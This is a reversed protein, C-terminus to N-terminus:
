KRIVVIDKEPISFTRNTTPELILWRSGLSNLVRLPGVLTAGGKNCAKVGFADAAAFGNCLSEPVALDVPSREAIGIARAVISAPIGPSGLIFVTEFFVVFATLLHAKIEKLGFALHMPTLVALMALTAVFRVEHGSSEGGVKQLLWVPVISYLAAIAGLLITAFFTRDSEIGNPTTTRPSMALIVGSVLTALACVPGIISHTFPAHTPWYVWTTAAFFTTLQTLLSRMVVVRIASRKAKYPLLHPGVGLAHYIWAPASFIFAFSGILLASVIGAQVAVFAGQGISADPTVNINFYYFALVLIGIPSTAKAVKLIWNFFPGAEKRLQALLKQTPNPNDNSKM